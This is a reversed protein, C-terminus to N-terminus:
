AGLFKAIQGHIGEPYVDSVEKHSKEHRFENWVTVNIKAM